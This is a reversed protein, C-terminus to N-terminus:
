VEVNNCGICGMFLVHLMATSRTVATPFAHLIAIRTVSGVPHNKVSGAGDPRSELCGEEGRRREGWWSRDIWCQRM